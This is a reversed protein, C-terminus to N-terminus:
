HGSPEHFFERRIADIAERPDGDNPIRVDSVACYREYRENYRRRISEADNSLPRDATPVLLALSRDLFYLRGNRKLARINEDRLIAVKHNILPHSFITVNEYNKM